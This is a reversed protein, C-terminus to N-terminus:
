NTEPIYRILPRGEALAIVADSSVASTCAVMPRAVCEGIEVGDESWREHAREAIPGSVSEEGEYPDPAAASTWTTAKM